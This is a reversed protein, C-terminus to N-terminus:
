AASRKQGPKVILKAAEPMEVPDPFESRGTAIQAIVIVTRCIIKLDYSFSAQRIYVTELAMKLPLLKEVYTQEANDGVLMKEGHTYNYLSSVGSLGPRVCLTAMAMEDYHQEVINMDEPRPGVISMDGRFINWLQPLEDLKTKRLLSGFAFVRADSAGTVASASPSQDIRMTRLKYLTFPRGDRGARTACYFSPGRSCLRVGLAGIAILPGLFVLATLSAGLDFLRKAM